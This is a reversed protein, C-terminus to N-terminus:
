WRWGVLAEDYVVIFRGDPALGFYEAGPLGLEALKRQQGAIANGGRFDIVQVDRRSEDVVYLLGLRDVGLAIVSRFQGPGDGKGGMNNVHVGQKKAQDLAFKKVEYTDDDYVYAADGAPSVALYIPDPLEEPLKGKEYRGFAFLYAGQEDFVQVRRQRADLVYTRGAEDMAVRLPTTFQGDNKGPQGFVLPKAKQDALNFRVVHMASNDLMVASQGNPSVALGAPRTLPGGHKALGGLQAILWGEHDFIHLKGNDANVGFYRGQGDMAYDRFSWLSHGRVGTPIGNADYRTVFGYEPFTIFTEGTADVYIDQATGPREVWGLDGLTKWANPTEGKKDAVLVQGSSLLILLGSRHVAIDVAPNKVDTQLKWTPLRRHFRDFRLVQAQAPDLCYLTGDSGLALRSVQTFADVGSGSRGLRARFEGTNEYVLVGGAAQDAIFAVGDPAIVLDTPSSGHGYDRVQNGDSGYVLVGLRRGDLVHLNKEHTVATIPRTPTNNVAFNVADCKQWGDDLRYVKDEAIGLWNGSPERVIHSLAPQWGGGFRAFLVADRTRWNDRSEAMVKVSTKYEQGLSDTVTALITSTGALAPASWMVTPATTTRASLIGSAGINGEVSWRVALADGDPDRVPLEIKVTEEVGAQITPMAGTASPPANPAAEKPLPVVDYGAAIAGESWTIRTAIKQSEVADLVQMKAVLKRGEVIVEKTLPHKQVLGPGYVALIMGPILQVSKDFAVIAQQGKIELVAGLPQEAASLAHSAVGSAFIAALLTSAVRMSYGQFYHVPFAQKTTVYNM